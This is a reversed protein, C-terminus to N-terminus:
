GTSTRRHPRYRPLGDPPLCPGVTERLPAGPLGEGLPHQVPRIRRGAAPGLRRRGADQRPRPLEGGMGGARLDPQHRLHLRRPRHHRREGRLAVPSQRSGVPVHGHPRTRRRRDCRTNGHPRGDGLGTRPQRGDLLCRLRRGGTRRHTRSPRQFQSPPLQPKARPIGSGAALLPTEIHCIAFDAASIWPEIRAFMPYFDHTGAGPANAGAVQRVSDMILIDGAAAITFTRPEIDLGDAAAPAAVAMSLLALV